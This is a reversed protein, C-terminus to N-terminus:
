RTLQANRSSRQQSEQITASDWFLLLKRFSSDFYCDSGHAALREPSKRRGRLRLARSTAAVGLHEAFGLGHLNQPDAVFHQVGPDGGPLDM